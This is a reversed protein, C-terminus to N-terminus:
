LKLTQQANPVSLLVLLLRSGMTMTTLNFLEQCRYRLRYIKAHLPLPSIKASQAFETGSCNLRGGFVKMDLTGKRIFSSFCQMMVSISVAVFTSSRQFTFSAFLYVHYQLLPQVVSESM